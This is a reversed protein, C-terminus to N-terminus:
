FCRCIMEAACLYEQKNGLQQSLTLSKHATSIAGEIDNCSLLLESIRRNVEAYAVTEAQSNMQIIQAARKYSILAEGKKCYHLQIEALNYYSDTMKFHNNGM